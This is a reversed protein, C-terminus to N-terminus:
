NWILCSISQFNGGDNQIIIDFGDKVLTTSVIAGAESIGGLPGNWTIAGDPSLSFSYDGDYNGDYAPGRYTNGDIEIDGLHINLGGISCRYTEDRLTEAKATAPVSLLVLAAFISSRTKQSAMKKDEPQFFIDVCNLINKLSV